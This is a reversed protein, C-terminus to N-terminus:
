VGHGYGAEDESTGSEAEAPAAPGSCAAEAVEAQQLEAERGSTGAEFGPRAAVDETVVFM